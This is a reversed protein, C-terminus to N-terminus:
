GWRNKRRRFLLVQAATLLATGPLLVAGIGEGGTEPLTVGIRNGVTLTHGNAAAYPDDKMLTLVLQGNERGAVSFGIAEELLDYGAPAATEVLYYQEGASLIMEATGDEGTVVTGVPFGRVGGSGPIEEGRESRSVHYLAFEAGALRELADYSDTKVLKARGYEGEWTNVVTYSWLYEGDRRVESRYGALSVEEVTYEVTEGGAKVPLNRWTYTWDNEASLEVRDYVRGDQRLTVEAKEPYAGDQRGAWVKSVAIDATEEHRSNTLLFNIDASPLTQRELKYLRFDMAMEEDASVYFAENSYFGSFYRRSGNVLRYLHGEGFYLPSGTKSLYGYSSMYVSKEVFPSYLTYSGEEGGPEAQWILSEPMRSGCTLDIAGLTIYDNKGASHEDTYRAAQLAGFSSVIVYQGPGDFATKEQWVPVSESYGDVQELRGYFGEVPQEKVTYAIENGLIDTKWLDKWTYSWNNGEHLRVASGKPMGDALLQVLVADTGAPEETWVKSVSVNIKELGLTFSLDHCYSEWSGGVMDQYNPSDYFYAQMHEGSITLEVRSNALDETRLGAVAASFAASGAPLMQKEAQGTGAQLSFLVEEGEEVARNLEGSVTLTYSGDEAQTITHDHRVVALAVPEELSCLWNKLTEVHRKIVAEDTHGVNALPNIYKEPHGEPFAAGGVDEVTIQGTTATTSWIAWQAAAIWESEGCDLIEETVEGAAVADALGARMEEATLFPYSHGIIAAVKRRQVDDTFRSNDLTYVQYATGQTTSSTRDDSCYAVLYNAQERGSWQVTSPAWNEDYTDMPILVFTKPHYAVQHSSAQYYLNRPSHYVADGQRGAQAEQQAAAPVASAAGLWVAAALMLGWRVLRKRKRM